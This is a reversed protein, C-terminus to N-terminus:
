ERPVRYARQGGFDRYVAALRTLPAAPLPIRLFRVDRQISLIPTAVDGWAFAPLSGCPREHRSGKVLRCLSSFCIVASLVVVSGDSTSAAPADKWPTVSQCAMSQCFTLWLTRRSRSRM